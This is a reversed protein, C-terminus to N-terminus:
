IFPFPPTKKRPTRKLVVPWNDQWEPAKHVREVLEVCLSKVAEDFRVYKVDKRFVPDPCNFSEMDYFQIKQYEAPFWSGDSYRIPFILPHRGGSPKLGILKQRELITHFESLCWKSVFYSPSCIAVLCRSDKLASLIEKEWYAGTVISKKDIFIKPNPVGEGRLWRELKGVFHNHVWEGVPPENNYSVFVDYRYGTM